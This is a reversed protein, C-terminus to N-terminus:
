FLKGSKKRKPTSTTLEEKMNGNEALKKGIKPTSNTGNTLPTKPAKKETSPLEQVEKEKKTTTPTKTFFSHLSKQTSM